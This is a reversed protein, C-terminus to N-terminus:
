HKSGVMVKYLNALSWSQGCDRCKVQNKAYIQEKGCHECVVHKFGLRGDDLKETQMVSGGTRSTPASAGGYGATLAKSISALGRKVNDVYGEPDAKNKSNIGYHWAHYIDEPTKRKQSIHGYLTNALEYALKPDKNIAETVAKHNTDVDSLHQALQPYKKALKPNISFVYQATKPMMGWPGGARQGEHMGKNVMKHNLNKGGSSEYQAIAWLNPNKSKIGNVLSEHTVKQQPIINAHEIPQKAEAAQPAGALAGMMAAGAIAQKFAKELNEDGTQNVLDQMKYLNRKIKEASAVRTIHRFSPVNTEALHAVSQILIRDMVEDYKSKDLDLPEVLTAQNAPTFTLAVSHIKTAALLSPDKLGRSLVGGEVSAKLKLPTDHKHINRLIAAAAKANMHDADDDYLYGRCYVYPAKIKDWYYTHRENDCDEAKYIKKAETIRGISNFFGKGHNDNFRGKGAILESIDAGEVSLMEGQTDRLQSGAVMDIELHKKSM